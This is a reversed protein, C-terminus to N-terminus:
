WLLLDILTIICNLVNSCNLNFLHLNKNVITNYANPLKKMASLLRKLIGTSGLTCSNLTNYVCIICWIIYKTAM